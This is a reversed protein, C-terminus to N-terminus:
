SIMIRARKMLLNQLIFKLKYYVQEANCKWALILVRFDDPRLELDKCLAEVGQTLIADEQNNFDKDRYKEFLSAIKGESGHKSESSGSRGLPPIRSVFTKRFFFIQFQKWSVPNLVWRKM